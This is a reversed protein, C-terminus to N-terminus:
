IEEVILQATKRGNWRNWGLRFAMQDFHQRLGKDTDINFHIANIAKTSRGSVQQRLTMRRHNEGVIKSSAVSINRAIFLPEPNGEGYPALSELEDILEDSINDFDLEYDISITQLFDGPESAERVATEFHEQFQSVNDAKITLGAAMSHGGFFQLDDSCAVLGAHLDIGPISRGSGKGLGNRTSILIVPRYYREVIKSAVIGLVGEHWGPHSLVLSHQRLLHPYEKLYELIEEVMDKEIEQRKQNMQNLTRAIQKATEADDTTLLRVATKAHGMRGAANLRPGLRFAIDETRVVNNSIGCAKILANVGPRRGSSIVELGTKSLIRNEDVLPVVDAVTGIAVLDCFNKLNPESRNQWFNMERLYKRLCVLLFFAVGVGALNNFGADCDPRKPNVIAIAGPPGDSINHHDTIIVDTGSDQALKVAEHSKSGCDVTIILKIKNPVAYDSIHGSQLSYGEKIRHPIYFSVDAGTYRLFELLVTTATVGDADYDGFILIKENNKIAAYIRRVAVDMDKMSFPPRLNSLSANRFRLIDSESLMNRNALIAAVVPSCNLIDRIKKM